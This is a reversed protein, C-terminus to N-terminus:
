YLHGAININIYFLCVNIDFTVKTQTNDKEEVMKDLAIGQKNVNLQCWKHGLACTLQKVRTQYLLWALGLACM